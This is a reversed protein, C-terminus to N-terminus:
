VSFGQPKRWTRLDERPENESEVSVVKSIPSAEEEARDKLSDEPPSNEGATADEKPTLPIEGETRDNPLDELLDAPPARIGQLLSSHPTEGIGAPLVTGGEEDADALNRM